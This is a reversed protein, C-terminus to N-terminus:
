GVRVGFDRMVMAIEPEFISDLEDRLSETLSEPEHRFVHRLLGRDVLAFTDAVPTRWGAQSRPSAAVYVGTDEWDFLFRRRQRLFLLRRLDYVGRNTDAALRSPVFSSDVGVLDFLHQYPQARRAEAPGFVHLAESKFYSNWHRLHTGYRSGDLLEKSRPHSSALQGDLLQRLGENPGQLPLYGFQMYWYYASLLRDIPDRLTVVVVADPSHLSLRAPVEPASLYNPRKIAVVKLNSNLSADLANQSSRGFFPDEFYPVENAVMHIDPHEALCASLHTSGAKQAGIVVLGIRSTM